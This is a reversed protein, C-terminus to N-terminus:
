WPPIFILLAGLLLVSGPIIGTLLGLLSFLPMAQAIAFVGVGGCLTIMLGADTRPQFPTIESWDQSENHVAARWLATLHRPDIM